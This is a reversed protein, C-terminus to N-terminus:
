PAGEAARHIDWEGAEIRHLGALNGQYFYAWVVESYGQIEIPERKFLEPAGEVAELWPLLSEEVEYVEGLVGHGEDSATLGPYDGLDYLAYDKSTRAVGQFRQSALPGHRCGGQKLTGYTFLLFTSAKRQM